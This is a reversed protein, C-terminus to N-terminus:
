RLKERFRTVDPRASWGDPALAFAQNLDARADNPRGLALQAQARMFWAEPNKADFEVMTSFDRLAEAWRGHSAALIGRQKAPSAPNQALKIALTLSHEAQAFEGREMEHIARLEFLEPMAGRPPSRLAALEHYLYYIPNIRDNMVHHAPLLLALLVTIQLLLSRRPSPATRGALLLCLAVLPVLMTMSRSYDQATALGIAATVVACAGLLIAITRPRLHSGTARSHDVGPGVSTPSLLRTSWLASLGVAVFLWGGRLGDWVGLAIQVPPADLFHQEALYGAVTAGTSSYHALAGLRVICFVAALAAPVVTDPSWAYRRVSAAASPEAAPAPLLMRGAYRCLLALPLAVVFREDVWPAWLCATWVTWRSDAFAVLLLGLAFWADFYGLWGTSTFFWSAAGFSVTALLTDRWSWGQRRLLGALYGLVLLCGVHALSFFVVPPLHLVHGIVPFLLRWQIARHLPDAIEAGPHALQELVSAGRRVELMVGMEPVRSWLRFAAWSPSFFFLLIAVCGLALLWRLLLERSRTPLM